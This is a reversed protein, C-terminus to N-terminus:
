NKLILHWVGLCTFVTQHSFFIYHFSFSLLARMAEAVRSGSPYFCYLNQQLSFQQLNACEWELTFFQLALKRGSLATRARWSRESSFNALSNLETRSRPWSGDGTSRGSVVTSLQLSPIRRHRSLTWGRDLVLGGGVAFYICCGNAPIDLRGAGAGASM